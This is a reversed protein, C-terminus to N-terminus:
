GCLVQLLQTLMRRSFSRDLAPLVEAPQRGIHTMVEEVKAARPVVLCVARCRLIATSLVIPPSPKGASHHQSCYAIFITQYVAKEPSKSMAMALKASSCSRLYILQNSAAPFCVDLFTSQTFMLLECVLTRFGRCHSDQSNPVLQISQTGTEQFSPQLFASAKLSLLSRDSNNFDSCLRLIRFSESRM